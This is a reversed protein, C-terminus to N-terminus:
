DLVRNLLTIYDRKASESICFEEPFEEAIHRFEKEHAAIFGTFQHEALVKLGAPHLIFFGFEKSAPNKIYDELMEETVLTVAKVQMEHGMERHYKPYRAILESVLGREIFGELQGLKILVKYKESKFLADIDLMSALILRHSVPIADLGHLDIVAKKESMLKNVIVNGLKEKAANFKDAIFSLKKM